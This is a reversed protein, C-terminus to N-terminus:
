DSLLNKLLARQFHLRNEAEEFIISNECEVIEDTIEFGRYAPLCHMIVAHTPANNTLERNVQYGQFDNIRKQKENEQGM